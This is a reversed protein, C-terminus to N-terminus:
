ANKVKRRILKRLLHYQDKLTPLSYNKGQSLDQKRSPIKGNEGITKIIEVMKKAGLQECQLFLSRETDENGVAIKQQYIIAGSDLGEDIYHITFGINSYDGNYLPWFVTSCGRYEPVIGSHFNIAGIKAQSFIEKKLIRTGLIVLVDPQLKKLLMQCEQDNHNEVNYIPFNKINQLLNLYPYKEILEDRVPSFQKNLFHILLRYYFNNIFQGIENFSFITKKKKNIKIKEVVVGVMNLDNEIIEKCFKIGSSNYQNKTLIVIKM